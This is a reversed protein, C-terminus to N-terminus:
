PEKIEVSWNSCASLSLVLALSLLACILKKM